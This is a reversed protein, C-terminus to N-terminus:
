RKKRAESFSCSLPASIRLMFRGESDAQECPIDEFLSVIEMSFLTDCQKLIPYLLVDNGYPYANSKFQSRLTEASKHRLPKDYATGFQLAGSFEYSAQMRRELILCNKKPVKAIGAAAFSAGLVIVDYM